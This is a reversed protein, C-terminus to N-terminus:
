YRAISHSNLSPLTCGQLDFPDTRYSETTAHFSPFLVSVYVIREPAEGGNEEKMHEVHAHHETMM